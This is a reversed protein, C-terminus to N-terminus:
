KGASYGSTNKSNDLLRDELYQREDKGRKTEVLGAYKARQDGTKCLRSQPCYVSNLGLNGNYIDDDSARNDQWM